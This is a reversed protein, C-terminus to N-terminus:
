AWSSNTRNIFPVHQRMTVNANAVDHAVYDHAMDDDVDAALETDLDDL